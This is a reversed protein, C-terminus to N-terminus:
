AELGNRSIIARGFILWFSHFVASFPAKSTPFKARKDQGAHFEPLDADKAARERAAAEDALRRIKAAEDEIAREADLPHTRLVLPPVTAADALGPCSFPAVNGVEFGGREAPKRENRSIKPRAIM